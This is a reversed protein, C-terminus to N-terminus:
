RPLAELAGLIRLSPCLEGGFREVVDFALQAECALSALLQVADLSSKPGPTVTELPEEYVRSSAGPPARAPFGPAAAPRDWATQDGEGARSALGGTSRGATTEKSAQQRVPRHKREVGEL